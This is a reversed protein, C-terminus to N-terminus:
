WDELGFTLPVQPHDERVVQGVAASLPCCNAPRASGPAGWSAKPSDSPPAAPARVSGWWLLSWHGALLFRTVPLNYSTEKM